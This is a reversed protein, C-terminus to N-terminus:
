GLLQTLPHTDLELLHDKGNVTVMAVNNRMGPFREVELHVFLGKWKGSLTLHLFDNKMSDFYGYLFSRAILWFVEAKKNDDLLLSKFLNEWCQSFSFCPIDIRYSIRKSGEFWYFVTKHASSMAVLKADNDFSTVGYWSFSPGLDPKVRHVTNSKQADAVKAQTPAWDAKDILLSGDPLTYPVLDTYKGQIVKNLM